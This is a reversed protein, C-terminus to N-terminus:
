LDLKCYVKPDDAQLREFIEAHWAAIEDASSVVPLHTPVAVADAVHAESDSRPCADTCEPRLLDRAGAARAANVPQMEKIRSCAPAAQLNSSLMVAALVLGASSAMGYSM